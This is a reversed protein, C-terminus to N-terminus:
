RPQFTKFPWIKKVVLVPMKTTSLVDMAGEVLFPEQDSFWRRHFRYFDSSMKVALIGRADDLELIYFAGEEHSHFRQVTQRIGAVRIEEGLHKGAKVTSVLDLDTLQDALLEIPHADVGAGLILKQASVRQELDWEALNTPSDLDFLHPQRFRWDQSQIQSLLHPISGLGCLGGVRILNEAEKPRPDVRTLFDSLSIFPRELLIREQTKRTLDRVQDLGMYLIARGEPYAASFKRQAHNIHPARLTIGLRRAENLYVRQRYYGGWGALVAAMFEAPYHAKCWASQWAVQAYSASHAKPFGYGAFAAMLEWIQEGTDKPVGSKKNAGVIFRNKLTKMRDGPDFHSMARRLLDADALSLGALESAIRLVQEQYLIVGYTNELLSSLAPHIHEVDELGLHRQVFADKLGGTMPGPRYLALAIMIDEPSQADIEQLTARMGPSEIAFCGITQTNQILSKTEADNEAISDLVNLPNRFETRRWSYVKEAVNGLVTLGRTGLLDIKVLGLKEIPELDFQTILIGKSALHVPVLDTMAGPTIVIGGPHISLHRPFDLISTADRFVTQYKPDLHREKLELFPHETKVRRRSRPGWGRGPLDATLTKIENSSLGYAKAVERLASRRQFRNITAVMAVQDQGYTQYVHQIVKDRRISCLDTDIDPPTSRAPNLFREFYLNLALPDPTTIGLCHAVLSSAASGRSSTPVGSKRAYTLIEQVILFLPAYDREGIVNLEKELRTRIHPTLKGYRSQAGTEALQRLRDLASVGPPLHIKPYHKKGLPLELKCREAIELSNDLATPYDVFRKAMEQSTCFDSGIPAPAEAPLANLRTNLRMATLTRQLDAEQCTLYHVNNSAVLPLDLHQAMETLTQISHSDSPTQWQLEVYLNDPFIEKLTNLIQLSNDLQNRNLLHGVLGRKGGSLCILRQTHRKLIEFSIGRLPDRQPTSQIASSLRCLNSWGNMNKALLILSGRGLKHDVVLELGLIPQIGGDLSAEYFEVAGTLGHHDTLALAPMQNDVAANVLARPSPVGDLFSYYSHTHLHVFNPM